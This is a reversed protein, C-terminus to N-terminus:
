KKGRWVVAEVVSLGFELFETRSGFGSGSASAFRSSKGEEEGEEEKASM